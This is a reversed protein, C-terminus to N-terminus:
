SQILFYALVFNSILLLSAVAKWFILPNKQALPLHSTGTLAAPNPHKLDYIFESLQEYRMQPNIATAKKLTIDIWLPIMPNHHFSSVYNLKSLNMKTPKEPM